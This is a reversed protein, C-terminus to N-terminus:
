NNMTVWRNVKRRESDWNTRYRRTSIIAPEVFTSLSAFPLWNVAERYRVEWVRGRCDVIAESWVDRTDSLEIGSVGGVIGLVVGSEINGRLEITLDSAIVEIDDEVTHTRV